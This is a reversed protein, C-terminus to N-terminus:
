YIHLTWNWMIDCLTGELQEVHSNSVANGSACLLLFMMFLNLSNLLVLKLFLIISILYKFFIWFWSSSQCFHVTFSKFTVMFLYYKKFNMRDLHKLDITSDELNYPTIEDDVVIEPKVLFSYICTFNHTKFVKQLSITLVSSHKFNCTWDWSM